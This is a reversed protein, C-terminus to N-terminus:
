LDLSISGWVEGGPGLIQLTLPRNDYVTIPLKFLLLGGQTPGFSATTNPAPEIAKPALTQSTWAYENLGTDLTLPYYYHQETDVIRFNDSTEHTQDTQNKAWLFVGYWIHGPGLTTSTGPPLGAVYQRDETSYQNLERSLQLQYTIPGAWEYVGDNESSPPHESKGCAALGLALAVAGLVAWTRRGRANTLASV